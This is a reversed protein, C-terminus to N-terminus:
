KAAKGQLYNQSLYVAPYVNSDKAEAPAGRYWADGRQALTPLGIAGTVPRDGAPPAGRPVGRSPGTM